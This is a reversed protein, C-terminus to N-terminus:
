PIGIIYISLLLKEAILPSSITALWGLALPFLWTPFRPDNLQYFERATEWEAGSYNVLTVANAIHLPGDQSPVFKTTWLPVLLVAILGYLLAADSSFRWSDSAPKPSRSAAELETTM